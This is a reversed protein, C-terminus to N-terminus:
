NLNERRLNTWIYILNVFSILVYVQIHIDQVWYHIRFCRLSVTGTRQNIDPTLLYGYEHACISLFVYSCM